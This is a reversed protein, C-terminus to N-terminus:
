IGKDKDAEIESSNKTGDENIKGNADSNSKSTGSGTTPESGIDVPENGMTIGILQQAETPDYVWYTTGDITEKTGPLIFYRIQKAEMSRMAFTLKVADWSSINTTFDGWIRWVNWLKTVTLSETQRSIIEKILRETRVTRSFANGDEDLFRMYQLAKDDTLRQYGRALNIDATDAGSEFHVMDREVYLDPTGWVNVMKKLAEEDVIVYYPISIHFMDEVVAKTLKINGASYFTDIAQQSTKDRSEIKTNSPIGIIDLKGQDKNLAALFIADGEGQQSADRGVVLIYIPKDLAKQELPITAVAEPRTPSASTSNTAPSSVYRMVTGIGYVLASILVIVIIFAVAIRDWRIGRKKKRRRRKPRQVAETENSQGQREQQEQQEDM